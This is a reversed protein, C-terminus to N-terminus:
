RRRDLPKLNAPALRFPQQAAVCGLEGAERAAATYEGRDGGFLARPALASPVMANRPTGRQGTDFVARAAIEVVTNLVRM